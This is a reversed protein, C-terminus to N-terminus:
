LFVGEEQGLVLHYWGPALIHDVELGGPKGLSEGPDNMPVCFEHPGGVEVRNM